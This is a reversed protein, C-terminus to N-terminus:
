TGEGKRGSQQGKELAQLEERSPLCEAARERQPRHLSSSSKKVSNSMTLGLTSQANAPPSALKRITCQSELTMHYSQSEAGQLEAPLGCEKHEGERTGM